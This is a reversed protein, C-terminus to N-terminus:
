GRGATPDVTYAVWRADASFTGGTANPIEIKENTELKLLHQVPKADTQTTNSLSVGYAVWKGDSSIEAGGISKWKTYDDVTLPKQAPSQAAPWAYAVACAAMLCFVFPAFRRPQVVLAHHSVLPRRTAHRRSSPLLRLM